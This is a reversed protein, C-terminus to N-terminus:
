SLLVVSQAVHMARYFGSSMDGGFMTCSLDQNGIENSTSLNFTLTVFDFLHLASVAAADLLCEGSLAAIFTIKTV